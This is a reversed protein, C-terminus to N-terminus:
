GSGKKATPAQYSSKSCVLSSSTRSSSRLAPSCRGAASLASGPSPGHSPVVQAQDLRQSAAGARELAGDGVVVGEEIQHPVGAQHEQPLGGVAGVLEVLR